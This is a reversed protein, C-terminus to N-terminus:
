LADAYLRLCKAFWNMFNRAIELALSRDFRDGNLMCMEDYVKQEHSNSSRTDDNDIEHEDGFCFYQLLNYLQIEYEASAFEKMQRKILPLKQRLKLLEELSMKVIEGGVDIKYLRENISRISINSSPYKPLVTNAQFQDNICDLLDLLTSEDMHLVSNMEKMNLRGCTALRRCPDLGIILVSAYESDYDDDEYDDGLRVVKEFLLNTSRLNSMIDRGKKGKEEEEGMRVCDWFHDIDFQKGGMQM